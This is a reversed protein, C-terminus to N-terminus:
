EYRLAEAPYVRSAGYAPVITALLAALYSGILILAIQGWPLTFTTEPTFATFFTRVISEGLVIGTVAGIILGTIAIFSAELVFSLAVMNSQYGIARLMGVQQRREVVTRSSNGFVDRAYSDAFRSEGSTLQAGESSRNGWVISNRLPARGHGNIAAGSRTTSVDAQISHSAPPASPFRSPVTNGSLACQMTGVM